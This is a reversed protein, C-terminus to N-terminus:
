EELTQMTLLLPDEQDSTVWLAKANDKWMQKVRDVMECLTRRETTRFALLRNTYKQHQTASYEEWAVVDAVNPNMNAVICLTRSTNQSKGYVVFSGDFGTKGAYNTGSRMREKQASTLDKLDPTGTENLIWVRITGPYRGSAIGPVVAFVSGQSAPTSPRSPGSVLGALLNGKSSRSSSSASFKRSLPSQSVSSKRSNNPLELQRTKKELLALAIQHKRDENKKTHDNGM